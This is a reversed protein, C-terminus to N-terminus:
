TTRWNETRLSHGLATVEAYHKINGTILVRDHMIATAAILPDMPGIKRGIRALGGMIEGALAAEPIGLPLVEFTEVDHHFESIGNGNQAKALGSVVEAITVSSITFRNFVRIYQRARDSVEPDRRDLIYSLADTDFVARNV